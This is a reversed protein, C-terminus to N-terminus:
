PTEEADPAEAQPQEWARTAHKPNGPFLEAPFAAHGHVGNHMAVTFMMQAWQRLTNRDNGAPLTGLITQGEEATLDGEAVMKQIDDAIEQRNIDPDNVLRALHTMERGAVDRQRLAHEQDLQQFNRVVQQRIPDDNFGPPAIAPAPATSIPPTDPALQNAPPAGTLPNNSGSM